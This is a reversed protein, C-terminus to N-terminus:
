LHSGGCGGAGRWTNLVRSRCDEQTPLHPRRCKVQPEELGEGRGADGQNPRWLCQSPSTHASSAHLPWETAPSEKSAALPPSHQSRPSPQPAPGTGPAEAWRRAEPNGGRLEEGGRRRWAGGWWALAVSRGVMVVGRQQCRCPREVCLSQGQEEGGCQGSPAHGAGASLKDGARTGAKGELWRGAGTWGTGLGKPHWRGDTQSPPQGNVKSRGPGGGSGAWKAVARCDVPGKIGHIVGRAVADAQGLTGLSAGKEGAICSGDDARGAVAGPVLSAVEWAGSGEGWLMLPSCRQRHWAGVGSCEVRKGRLGLQALGM